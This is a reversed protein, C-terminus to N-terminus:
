PLKLSISNIPNLPESKTPHSALSPSAAQSVLFHPHWPSQAATPPPKPPFVAFETQLVQPARSVRKSSTDRDCCTAPSFSVPGSAPLPTRQKWAYNFDHFVPFPEPPSPGVKPSPSFKLHLYLPPALQQSLLLFLLSLHADDPLLPSIKLLLM